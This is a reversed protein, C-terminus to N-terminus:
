RVEIDDVPMGSLIIAKLTQNSVFSFSASAQGDFKDALIYSDAVALPDQITKLRGNVLAGVTNSYVQMANGQISEIAYIQETSLTDGLTVANTVGNWENANFFAGVEIGRYAIRPVNALQKAYLNYQKRKGINAFVPVVSISILGDTMGAGFVSPGSFTDISVVLQDKVPLPAAIDWYGYMAAGTAVNVDDQVVKSTLAGQPGVILGAYDDKHRAWHTAIPVVDLCFQDIDLVKEKGDAYARISKFMQSIRTLSMGAGVTTLLADVVLGALMKGKPIDIVWKLNGSQNFTEPSKRAEPYIWTPKETIVTQSM